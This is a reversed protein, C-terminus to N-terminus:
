RMLGLGSDRLAKVCKPGMAILVIPIFIGKDSGDTQRFKLHPTPMLMGVTTDTWYTYFWNAKSMPALAIGNGHAYFNNHWITGESFPPNMWVIGEWLQALGNQEKHFHKKAPVFPAGDIPACVDLDFEIGLADFIFKPTYQEDTARAM